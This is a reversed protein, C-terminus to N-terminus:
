RQPQRRAGPDRRRPRNRRRRRRPACAAAAIRAQLTVLEDPALTLVGAAAAAFDNWWRRAAAAWASRCGTRTSRGRCTPPNPAVATSRAPWASAPTIWRNRRPAPRGRRPWSRIWCAIRLRRVRRERLATRLRNAATDGDAQALALLTKTGGIDGALVAGM